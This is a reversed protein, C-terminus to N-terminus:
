TNDAHQRARMHDFFGIMQRFAIESNRIALVLRLAELRKQSSEGADDLQQLADATWEAFDMLCRGIYTDGDAAAAAERYRIMLESKIRSAQRVSLGMAHAISPMDLQWQLLRHMARHQLQKKGRGRQLLAPDLVGFNICRWETVARDIEEELHDAAPTPSSPQLM